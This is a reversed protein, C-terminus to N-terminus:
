SEPEGPPLMPPRRLPAVLWPRIGIALGCVQIQAFVLRM